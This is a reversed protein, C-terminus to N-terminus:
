RKTRTSRSAQIKANFWTKMEVRESILVLSHRVIDDLGVLAQVTANLAAGVLSLGEALLILKQGMHQLVGTLSDVPAGVAVLGEDSLVQQLLVLARM